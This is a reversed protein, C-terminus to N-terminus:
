LSLCQPLKVDDLEIILKNEYRKCKKISKVLPSDAISSISERGGGDEIEEVSLVEDVALGYYKGDHEIVLAMERYSDKMITKAEEILDIVTKAYIHEADHLVDKVCRERKCKDHEQRCGVAELATEHLLRHPEEIKQMHYNIANNDSKFSYYWKGFACNHPDTALNFQEHHEIAYNLDQVWKYHDQKRQELMAVFSIYEEDLTKEGFVTRLDLMPVASGMYIFIGRMTKPAEPIKEVFPMERIAMVHASNLTFLRADVRFVIYPCSMDEINNEM